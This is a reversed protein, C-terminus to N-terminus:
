SILGLAKIIRKTLSSQTLTIQTGKQHIDVGLYGEVTGEKHIAVEKSQMQKIFDHIEDEDKCYFLIDDVYIILILTSSFFLCPDYKSPTLGQCILHETFYEFFYRPAQRLGYLSHSLQLGHNDKVKFSHPQHVYIEKGPKLLADIFAETIGCQVSKWGKLASLIMMIWITSWQVVPSWTEFFDIGKKQQNGHACFRAKFKKVMGNPYCKVKLDWTSSIVKMDPTRPALDWCKFGNELTHLEVQM